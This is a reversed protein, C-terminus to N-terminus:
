DIDNHGGRKRNLRRVTEASFDASFELPKAILNANLEELKKISLWENLATILSETLTKGQAYDTVEHVLQDPILATVKM